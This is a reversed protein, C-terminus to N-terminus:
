ATVSSSNNSNSTSVGSRNEWPLSFRVRILGQDECDKILMFVDNKFESIPRKDIRKVQYRYKTIDLEKQGKPTPETSITVKEYYLQRVHKRIVPHHFIEQAMFRCLSTLTTLTDTTLASDTSIYEEAAKEPTEEIYKPSHLEINPMTKNELLINEALQDASLGAVAALQDLRKQIADKAFVRKVPRKFQFSENANMNPDGGFQVNQKDIYKSLHYNTYELLYEM